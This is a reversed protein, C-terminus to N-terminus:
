DVSRRVIEFMRPVGAQCEIAFAGERASLIEGEGGIERLETAEGPVRLMRRGDRGSVLLLFDETAEVVDPRDFDDSPEALYLHAGAEAALWRWMAPTLSHVGTVVSTWDDNRKMAVSVGQHPDDRYRALVRVDPDTVVLYPNVPPLQAKPRWFIAARDVPEGFLTGAEAGLAGGPPIVSVPQIPAHIIECDIGTIGGPNGLGGDDAFADALHCFVVTREDRMWRSRLVEREEEGIRYPTALVLLRVSDPIRDLDSQLYIGLTVDVRALISRLEYLWRGTVARSDEALQPISQEDIVLAVEPRYAPRQPRGELWKFVPDYAEWIEPLNFRGDELLGMWYILYGRAIAVGLNRRLVALTEDLTQTKLHEGPAFFDGPSKAVHTYTDEELFALKGHLAASDLVANADVPKGFARNDSNYSYPGGHFDVDPSRLVAGLALHAQQQPGTASWAHELTYGYFPGVIVRDHFVRGIEGSARAIAQAVSESHFRSFDIVRQQTAPDRFNGADGRRREEATPVAIDDARGFRTGWAANVANLSGYKEVAWAGFARRHNEDFGAMRYDNAKEGMPSGPDAYQWEGTLYYMPVFGALRAAAPSKRLDLALRRIAAAMYRKLRESHVGGVAAATHAGNDFVAREEPYDAFFANRPGLWLRLLFYAEPFKETLRDLNAPSDQKTVGDFWANFSLLRLGHRYPLELDRVSADADASTELNQGHALLSPLPKGGIEIRPARGAKAVIRTEEPLHLREAEPDFAFGSFKARGALGSLRCELVVRAAGPAPAAEVELKTEGARWAGLSADASLERGDAGFQRIIVCALEADFNIDRTATATPKALPRPSELAVAASFRMSRDAAFSGEVERFVVAVPAGSSELTLSDDSGAQAFGAAFALALLFSFSAFRM